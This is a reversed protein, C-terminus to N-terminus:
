NFHFATRREAKIRTELHIEQLFLSLTVFWVVVLLDQAVLVVALVVLAIEAILLLPSGTAM